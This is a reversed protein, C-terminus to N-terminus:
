EVSKLSETMSVGRLRPQMALNVIFAFVFTLIVAIIYDMRDLRAEFFIFKVVISDIVFDLLRKGLPLGVLAAAATLAINERFVYQSVEIPYFGLVKITAIERVRETININTLNYLVIFALLGASLIVVYIVSNLSKMMNNVRGRTDINVSVAAAREYNAASTAHDRIAAEDASDPVNVYATKIEPKKNFREKYTGLSMYINDGVYNECIAAVKVKMEKYGDKLTLEDGAGIGYDHALKRVVVCEGDAPFGIAGNENHLDIFKGFEDADTAVCTIEATRGGYTMDVPGQHAFLVGSKAGTETELYELFKAQRKENMNKNFIVQYDYTSIESYQYDAVNSISTGIGMAAVLLATCGSVGIIMMLFRKKDRFINRISVKQLFGIRNWVPKVRELLIRKGAKPAKPRILDSPAVKFDGSISVWTAGMSCLMAVALSILGLKWDIIFDVSDSFDYMMTYAHWIVMPFIKCGVLFGIVAGILAASGSYFMYKALIAGNSYGLAKLVGIQTRQEDIMRTMTTMCVLAAILFFFVPFVKAINSVIDSNSEFSSYGMNDNRSLAYSNGTEMDEIKAQADEIKEWADDLDKKADALEKDAKAREENLTEQADDLEARKEKITKLGANAQKMGKNIKELGANITKITKKVEALQTEAKEIESIGAKVTKIQTEVETLQPELTKLTEELTTKQTKLTEEKVAIVALQEARYEETILGAAVAQDLSEKTKEIEALGQKCQTIGGKTQAIGTDLQSKAKELEKLGAKAEAKKKDSGKLGKELAAKGEEAKKLGAEAEKKKSKLDALAKNAEKEKKNLESRGDDIKEQADAIEKDADAKADEYEKVGDNYEEIKDNLEDRAKGQERERRDATIREALDEMDDKRADLGDNLEDSLIEGNVDLTLYLNTYYDVDFAEKPVFFFTDLSGDGLTTSGRQYDLYIPTNIFGVVTFEKEKFSDLTDEDNNDTLRFIDGVKFSSGTMIYHDVVCENPKEPLRGEVLNLTNIDEPLSIAKLASEGRGGTDVMADIQISAEAGTVGKETKALTISEDDIGYSSLIMYDYFNHDNLYKDATSIMSAKCDKLGAFFGVGLAVIALIALYRALSSRIERFTSKRLM